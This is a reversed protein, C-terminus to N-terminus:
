IRTCKVEMAYRFVKAKMSGFVVVVVVTIANFMQKISMNRQQWLTHTHTHINSHHEHWQLCVFVHDCTSITLTKTFALLPFWRFPTFAKLKLCSRIYRYEVREQDHLIVHSDYWRDICQWDIITYIISIINYVSVCVVNHENDFAHSFNQTNKNTQQKM